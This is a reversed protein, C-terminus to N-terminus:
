LNYRQRWNRRKITMIGPFTSFSVPYCKNFRCLATSVQPPVCRVFSLIFIHTCLGFLSCFCCPTATLHLLPNPAKQPIYSTPQKNSPPISKSNIQGSFIPKLGNDTFQSIRFISKHIVSISQKQNMRKFMATPLTWMAPIFIPSFVFFQKLTFLASSLQAIVFRNVPKRSFLFTIFTSM